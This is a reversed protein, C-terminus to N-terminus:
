LIFLHERLMHPIQKIIYYQDNRVWTTEAKTETAVVSFYSDWHSFCSDLSGYKSNIFVRRDDAIFPWNEIYIYAIPKTIQSYNCTTCHVCIKVPNQGYYRDIWVHWVECQSVFDWLIKVRRSGMEWLIKLDWLIKMGNLLSHKSSSPIFWM